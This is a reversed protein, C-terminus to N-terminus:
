DETLFEAIAEMTMTRDPVIVSMGRVTQFKYGGDVPLRLEEIQGELAGGRKARHTNGRHSRRRQAADGSEKQDQCHVDPADPGQGQSQRESM